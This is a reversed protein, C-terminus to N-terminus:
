KISVVWWSLLFTGIRQSVVLKWFKILTFYVMLIIKFVFSFKGRWFYGPVFPKVSSRDFVWLLILVIEGCIRIFLLCYQYGFCDSLVFVSSFVLSWYIKLVSLFDWINLFKYCFLDLYLYIKIRCIYPQSLWFFTGSDM